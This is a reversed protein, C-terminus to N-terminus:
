WWLASLPKGSGRPHARGEVASRLLVEARSLWLAVCEWPTVVDLSSTASRQGTVQAAVGVRASDTHECSM